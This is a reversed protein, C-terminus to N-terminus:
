FHRRGHGRRHHRPKVVIVRSAPRVIIPAAVVVPRVIIPSPCIIPPAAVLPMAEVILPGRNSFDAAVTTTMSANDPVRVRYARMVSADRPTGLQQFAIEHDGPAVQSINIPAEGMVTGDMIVVAPVDSRAQILTAASLAAPVALALALVCAHIKRTQM